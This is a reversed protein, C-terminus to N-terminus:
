RAEWKLREAEVEEITRCEAGRNGDCDFLRVAEVEADDEVDQARVWEDDVLAEVEVGYFSQAAMYAGGDEAAAEEISTAAANAATILTATATM